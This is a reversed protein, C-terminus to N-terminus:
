VKGRINRPFAGVADSRSASSSNWRRHYPSSESVRVTALPKYTLERWLLRLIGSLRFNRLFAGPPFLEAKDNITGESFARIEGLLARHTVADLPGDGAEALKRRISRAAHLRRQVEAARQQPIRGHRAKMDNLREAADYTADVIQARTMWRTEYNLISEWDRKELLARHEALTRARITYGRAEAREFGDSGPDIFPGMPTVFASLRRDFRRFLDEISDITELVNDYTQGPLGIM